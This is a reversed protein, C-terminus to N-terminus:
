TIEDVIVRDISIKQAAIDSLWLSVFSLLALQITPTLGVHFIPVLPMTDAYVWRGTVLAWTELAIAFVVLLVYLIRRKQRLSEFQLFPYSFLAIVAADFAAARLLIINTIAGGQYSVYLASHAHEWLFNLIFAVTFIALTRQFNNM